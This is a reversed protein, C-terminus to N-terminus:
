PLKIELMNCIAELKYNLFRSEFDDEDCLGQRLWWYRTVEKEPIGHVLSDLLESIWSTRTLKDKLQNSTYWDPPDGLRDDWEGCNINYYIELLEEKTFNPTKM